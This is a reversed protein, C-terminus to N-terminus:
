AAASRNGARRRRKGRTTAETEAREAPARETEAIQSRVERKCADIRAREVQRGIGALILRVDIMPRRTLSAIQHANYGELKLRHVHECYPLQDATFTRAHREALLDARTLLKSPSPM